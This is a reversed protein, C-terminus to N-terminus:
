YKTSGLIAIIALLAVDVFLLPALLPAEDLWCKLVSESQIACSIMFLSTAHKLNSACQHKHIWVSM